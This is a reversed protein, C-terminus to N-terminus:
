KVRNLILAEKPDNFMHSDAFKILFKQIDETKAIIITQGDREVHEIRVRKNEILDEFDENEITNVILQDGKIELKFFGHTRILMGSIYSEAIKEEVHENNPILDLFYNGDLRSLKGDFISTDKESYIKIEYHKRLHPRFFFNEIKAKEEDSYNNKKSKGEFFAKEEEKSAKRKKIGSGYFFAEEKSMGEPNEKETKAELGTSDVITTIVYRTSDEEMWVGDLEDLHVRDKDTYLPHLSSVVCSQAFLLVFILISSFKGIKKIITNM